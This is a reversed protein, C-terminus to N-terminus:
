KSQKLGKEKTMIKWIFYFLMKCTWTNIDFVYKSVFYPKDFILPLFRNCSKRSLM